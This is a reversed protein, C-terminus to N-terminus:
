SLEIISIFAQINNIPIPSKNVVSLETKSKTNHILFCSNSSSKDSHIKLSILEVENAYIAFDGIEEYFNKASISLSISYTKNSALMFIGSNPIHTVDTGNKGTNCCFPIPKGCEVIVCNKQYSSLNQNINTGTAGTAGAIGTAGTAGMYGQPGQIGMPGQCGKSGIPGQPGQLGADGQPGLPGPPGMPGQPGLDGMPGQPGVFGMPGIDGKPGIPGQYGQDGKEGKPGTPGTPGKCITICKSGNQDKCCNHNCYKKYEYLECNKHSTNNTHNEFYKTDTDYLFCCLDKQKCCYKNDYSCNQNFTLNKCNSEVFQYKLLYFFECKKTALVYLYKCKCNEQIFCISKVEYYRPLCMIDDSFHDSEISIISPNYYKYQSCRIISDHSTTTTQNIINKDFILEGSVDGQKSIIIIKEQCTLLFCNSECCFSINNFYNYKSKIIISNVPEFCCNLKYIRTIFKMSINFNINNNEFNTAQYPIAWFCNEIFDYCISEYCMNSKYTCIKCGLLDTKLIISNYKSFFYLHKSDTTMGQCKNLEPLKLLNNNFLILNM